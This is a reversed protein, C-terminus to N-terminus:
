WGAQLIEHGFQDALRASSWLLIASARYLLRVLIEPHGRSFSVSEQVVQLVRQILEPDRWSLLRLQVGNPRARSRIDDHSPSRAASMHWGAESEWQWGSHGSATQLVKSQGMARRGMRHPRRDDGRCQLIPGLQFIQLPRHPTRFKGLRLQM